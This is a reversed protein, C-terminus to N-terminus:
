LLPPPPASVLAAQAPSHQLIYAYDDATFLTNVPVPGVGAYMAGLFSVPWDNCDQMLLLVREERRVGAALIAAGMRRIREALEHYTLVEQDDIYAVKGANQGNCEILHQAFNFRAPPPPVCTM